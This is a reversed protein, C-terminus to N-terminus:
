RREAYMPPWICTLWLTDDVERFYLHYKGIVTERIPLEPMGDLPHLLSGLREPELLLARVGEALQVAEPDGRRALDPITLRLQWRATETVRIKM